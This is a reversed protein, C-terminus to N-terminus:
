VYIREYDFRREICEKQARKQIERIYMWSERSELLRLYNILANEGYRPKQKGSIWKTVTGPSTNFWYALEKISYHNDVYFKFLKACFDDGNIDVTSRDILKQKAKHM